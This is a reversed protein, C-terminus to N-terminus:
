NNKLLRKQRLFDTVLDSLTFEENYIYRILNVELSTPVLLASLLTLIDNVSVNMKNIFQYKEDLDSLIKQSYDGQSYGIKYNKKNYKREVFKTSNLPDTAAKKLKNYIRVVLLQLYKKEFEKYEVETYELFEQYAEQIKKKIIIEYALQAYSVRNTWQPIKGGKLYYEALNEPSFEKKEFVEESKDNM